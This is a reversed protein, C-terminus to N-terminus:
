QKTCTDFDSCNIRRSLTHRDRDDPYIFLDAQADVFVFKINQRLLKDVNTVQREEGPDVLLSVFGSDFVTLHM